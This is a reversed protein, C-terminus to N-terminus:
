SAAPSPSATASSDSTLLPSCLLWGGSESIVTVEPALILSQFVAREGAVVQDIQGPAPSQGVAEFMQTVFEHVAEDSVQWSLTGAVSVTATDGSIDKLAVARDTIGIQAADLFTMLVRTQASGSFGLESAIDQRNAACELSPMTDWQKAVFTDLNANVAAVPDAAPAPVWSPAAGTADPAPSEALAGTGGLVVLGLTLAVVVIRPKMVIVEKTDAPRDRPHSPM